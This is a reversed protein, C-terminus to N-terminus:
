VAASSWILPSNSSLQPCIKRIERQVMHQLGEDSGDNLCNLHPAVVSSKTCFQCFYDRIIM